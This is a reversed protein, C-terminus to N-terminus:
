GCCIWRNQRMRVLLKKDHRKKKIKRFIQLREDLKGKNEGDFENKPCLKWGIEKEVIFFNEIRKIFNEEVCSIMEDAKISTEDM